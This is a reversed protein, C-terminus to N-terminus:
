SVEWEIAWAEEIVADPFATVPWAEGWTVWESGTDLVAHAGPLDVGLILSRASVYTESLDYSALRVGALGYEAAAELTALIPAGDDPGGATLRYLALVDADTVPWGSRRLSAALAEASCCAVGEGLALGRRPHAKARAVNKARTHAAKMAAKHRAAKVKASVHAPKPTAKHLAKVHKVTKGHAPKAAAPKKKAPPKKV